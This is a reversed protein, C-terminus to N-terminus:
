FAKGHCGTIGKDKGKPTMGKLETGKFTFDDLEWSM